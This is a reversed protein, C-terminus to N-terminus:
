GGTRELTLNAYPDVSAKWEPFIVTTSGYEEIVAPGSLSSGPSLLERSYVPCNLFSGKFYVSREEKLAESLVRGGAGESHLKPKDFKGSAVVRLYVIEITMEKRSYGYTRHYIDHFDREMGELESKLDVPVELQYSQGMYRMDVSYAIHVREDPLGEKTLADRGEGEMEKLLTKILSLDAEHLETVYTRAYHHQLDTTLLGFACANGPHNPVLVRDAGLEEAIPIAYMPGAGGIPVLAFDRPDLGREISLTRIAGAMNSISIEIIGAALRNQDSINAQRGLSSIAQEALDKNLRLNGALPTDVSLYGLLLSADTVTAESSGKGYSAPGPDAGASRPGVKLSGNEDVWGISGGGTGITIIDLQPTKIPVGAFLRERTIVPKLNRTLSVDTSTGGMDYTIIDESGIAEGLHVGASVGAAPGSLLFRVPYDAASAETLISGSSTMYFLEGKYGESRLLSGLKKLYSGVLVEVYANLITTAWREFERFEPVVQASESVPVWPLHQRILEAARHEHDPNAYSNVFCVAASEIEERKMEDIISEIDEDRLDNLVAGSYLVREDVEYRLRRPVYPEPRQWRINWLGQESYRRLQGYEIVDRHGKTVLVATKAGKREVVANTAITTGHVIMRVDRLDLEMEGLGQMFAQTPDSPTSPVKYVKLQNTQEDFVVFDTFTGGTDVGINLM